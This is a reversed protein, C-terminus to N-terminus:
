AHAERGRCVFCNAAENRTVARNCTSCVALARMPPQRPTTARPGWEACNRHDNFPMHGIAPPPGYSM